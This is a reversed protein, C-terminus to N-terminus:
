QKYFILPSVSIFFESKDSVIYGTLHRVFFFLNVSAIWPMLNLPYDAKPMYVCVFTTQWLMQTEECDSNKERENRM